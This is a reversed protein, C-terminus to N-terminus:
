EVPAEPEVPENETATEPEKPEKTKKATEKAVPMVAKVEYGEHTKFWEALWADTVEAKGYAFQVGGISEGCYNANSPISIIWKEPKVAKKKGQAM